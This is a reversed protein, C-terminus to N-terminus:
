SWWVGHQRQCMSGESILQALMTEAVEPHGIGAEIRAFWYRTEQKVARDAVALRHGDEFDSLLKMLDGATDQGPSARRRLIKVLDRQAEDTFRPTVHPNKALGAAETFAALGEQIKENTHFATTQVLAATGPDRVSSQISAQLYAVATKIAGEAYSRHEGTAEISTYSGVLREFIATPIEQRNLRARTAAKLDEKVAQFSLWERVALRCFIEPRLAFAELDAITSKWWSDSAQISGLRRLADDMCKEDVSIPVAEPSVGAKRKTWMQKAKPWVAGLGKLISIWDM